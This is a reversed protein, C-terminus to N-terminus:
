ESVEEPKPYARAPLRLRAMWDRKLFHVYRFQRLSRRVARHLNQCLHWGRSTKTLHATLLMEHYTEGDLEYFRTMHHGCYLFNAALNAASGEADPVANPYTRRILLAEEIDVPEGPLYPWGTADVPLQDLVVRKIGLGALEAPTWLECIEPGHLVDEIVVRCPALVTPAALAAGLCGFSTTIGAICISALAIFTM